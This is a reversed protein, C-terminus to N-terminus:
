NRARLDFQLSLLRGDGRSCTADLFFWRAPTRKEPKAAAGQGFNSDCMQEINFAARLARVLQDPNIKVKM